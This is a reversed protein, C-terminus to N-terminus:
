KGRTLASREYARLRAKMTPYDPCYISVLNWFARSHNLEVTHALEHIIVYDIIDPALNILNLNLSLHKKSSCSGWITSQRRFSVRHVDWGTEKSLARVRETLHRKAERDVWKSLMEVVHRDDGRTDVVCIRGEEIWLMREDFENRRELEYVTGLHEILRM